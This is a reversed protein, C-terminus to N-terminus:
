NRLEFIDLWDNSDKYVLTFGALEDYELARYLVSNYFAPRSDAQSSKRYHLQLETYQKGDLEVPKTSLAYANPALAGQALPFLEYQKQGTANLVGTEVVCYASVLDNSSLVFANLGQQGNAECSMPADAPLYVSGWMNQQECESEGVVSSSQNLFACSLYNIDGFGTVPDDSFFGKMGLYSLDAFFYEAGNAKMFAALEAESGQALLYAVEPIKSDSVNAESVVSKLGVCELPTGYDWWSLVTKGGANQMLWNVANGYSVDGIIYRAVESDRCYDKGQLAKSSSITKCLELPDSSRLQPSSVCLSADSTIVAVSRMCQEYVFPLAGASRMKECASSDAKEAAYDTFCQLMDSYSTINACLGSDNLALAAYSLCAYKSSDTLNMCDVVRLVVPSVPSPSLFSESPYVIGAPGTLSASPMYTFERLDSPPVVLVPPQSSTNQVPPQPATCNEEWPRICKQLADCWTYGASPKCGYADSDNGVMMGPGNEQPQSPCGLLLASVFLISLLYFAKM